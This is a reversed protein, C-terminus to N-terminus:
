AMEISEGLHCRKHWLLTSIFRWLWRPGTAALADYHQPLAAADLGAFSVGRLTRLVRPRSAELWPRFPMPYGMKRRRWAVQKPLVDEVAKRLLYKTWGDRILYTAPLRFAFEALHYDMFPARSEIPIGYLTKNGSRLWHNMKWSGWNDIMRGDFDPAPFRTRGDEIRVLARAAPLRPGPARPAGRILRRLLAHRTPLPWAAAERAAALLRGRGLLQALHPVAYEHPYGALLEDGGSGVIVAKYGDERMRSRVVFNTLLNPSHFPEEMLTVFADAREWFDLLPARIVRYDIQEGFREAVQRAFAEEDAEPQEFKVAYAAFREEDPRSARLAVLSSSDMGGSLEMAVPVDARERSRIARDLLQRFESTAEDFGIARESLREQPLSWYRQARVALDPGVVAYAANDLTRIGEYFTEHEVDRWAHHVFDHLAQPRVAFADAGTVAHIAKIESGWYLAGDRVAWYLPSKGIRDRSLLLRRRRLDYLSFAWFGELRPFCDLGWEEYARLLVETDSSSRFRHGLKDLEERLAAHNYIEGNFALVVSGDDNWFPQHGGPSPDVIAFRCHGFGLDHVFPEARPAGSERSLFGRLERHAGSRTDIAAYGEDDPGRHHIARLMAVLADLSARPRNPAYYGVIGCM